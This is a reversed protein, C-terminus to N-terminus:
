RKRSKCVLGRGCPRHVLILRRTRITCRGCDDSSFAPCPVSILVRMLRRLLQPGPADNEVQSWSMRASPEPHPFQELVTRVLTRPGVIISLTAPDDVRPPTFRRPRPRPRPRPPPTRGPRERQPRSEPYPFRKRPHATFVVLLQSLSKCAHHRLEGPSSEIDSTSESDSDSGSGSSVDIVSPSSHRSEPINRRFVFCDSGEGRCAYSKHLPVRGQNGPEQRQGLSRNVARRTDV